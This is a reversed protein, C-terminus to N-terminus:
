VLNNPNSLFENKARDLGYMQYIGKFTASAIAYNSKIGYQILANEGKNNFVGNINRSNVINQDASLADAVLLSSAYEGVDVLGDNNLDLAQASMEVRASGFCNDSVQQLTQTLEQTKIASRKGMEEYAFALLADNDVSSTPMYTCSFDVPPMKQGALKEISKDLESMKSEFKDQTLGALNSLNPMEVTELRFDSLYGMYNSYANKAYIASSNPIQASYKGNQGSIYAVKGITQYM